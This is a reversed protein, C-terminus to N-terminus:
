TRDRRARHRCDGMEHTLADVEHAHERAHHEGADADPRDDGTRIKRVGHENQSHADQKGEACGLLRSCRKDSPSLACLTNKMRKIRCM